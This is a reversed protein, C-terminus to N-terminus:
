YYFLITNRLYILVLKKIMQGKFPKLLKMNFNM